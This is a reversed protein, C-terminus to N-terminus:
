KDFKEDFLEEMYEFARESSLSNFEAKGSMSASPDTFSHVTNSFQVLQWDVKTKQMAAIWQQVDAQPVFPDNAGHLVLVSGDINKSDSELTPSLLDGHFSVVADLDAGTRAFELVAGGGFCFGVAALQGDQLPLGKEDLFVKMAKEMRDRMLERDGRLAGAAASAESQDQPRVETGYLDVMMVVYDDGAIRMAKELSSRTPGMWNPVMLIGPRSDEEDRDWVITSEFTTGDLEYTVRRLALQGLAGTDDAHASVGGTLLALSFLLTKKM